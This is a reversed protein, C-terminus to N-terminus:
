AGFAGCPRPGWTSLRATAAAPYAALSLFRPHWSVVSLVVSYTLHRHDYVRLHLPRKIVVASLVVFWLLQWSFRTPPTWIYQPCSAIYSSFLALILPVKDWPSLSLIALIDVFRYEQGCAVGQIGWANVTIFSNWKIPLTGNFWPDQEYVIWRDDAFWECIRSDDRFSICFWGGIM